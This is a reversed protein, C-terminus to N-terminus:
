SDVRAETSNLLEILYNDFECIIREPDIACDFFLCKYCDREESIDIVALKSYAHIAKQIIAIPYFEKSYYQVKNKMRRM